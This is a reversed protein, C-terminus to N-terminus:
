GILISSNALRQADEATGVVKVVVEAGWVDDSIEAGAEKFTEDPISAGAGAGPQIVVTHGKAALRKVVDPVLAVRREREGTETPVGIRMLAPVRTSRNRSERPRM